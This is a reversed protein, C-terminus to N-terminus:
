KRCTALLAQAKCSENKDAAKAGAEPRQYTVRSGISDSNSLSRGDGVVVARLAGFRLNALTQRRGIM